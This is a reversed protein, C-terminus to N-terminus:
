RPISMPAAGTYDLILKGGQIDAGGAGALVPAQASVGLELTGGQVTTTGTYTNVSNLTVKGAGQKLVGTAGAIGKVGTVTFDLSSNNFTVSNPSVDTASIDVTTMGPATDDFTVDGGDVYNAVTGGSDKWNNLGSATSWITSGSGTWFVSAAIPGIRVGAGTAADLVLATGGLVLQGDGGTLGTTYSWLTGDSTTRATHDGFVDFLVQADAVGYNLSANALNYIAAADADSLRANWVAVDDLAATLGNAATGAGGSAFAGITMPTGWAVLSDTSVLNDNTQTFSASNDIGDIYLKAGVDVDWTVVINHWQDDRWTTTPIGGYWFSHKTDGAERIYFDLRGAQFTGRDASTDTNLQFQQNGQRDAM